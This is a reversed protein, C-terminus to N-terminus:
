QVTPRGCWTETLSEVTVDHDGVAHRLTARYPPPHVPPRYFAGVSKKEKESLSL